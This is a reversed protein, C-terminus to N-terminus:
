WYRKVIQEAWDAVSLRLAALREAPDQADRTVLRSLALQSEAEKPAGCSLCRNPFVLSSPSHPIYPARFTTPM